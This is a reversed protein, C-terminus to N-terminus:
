APYEPGLVPIEPGGFIELSVEPAFNRFGELSFRRFSKALFKPHFIPGSSGGWQFVAFVAFRFRAYRRCGSETKSSRPSTPITVVLVVLNHLSVDHDM